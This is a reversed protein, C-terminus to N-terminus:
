KQKLQNKIYGNKDFISIEADGSATLCISVRLKGSTDHLGIVANDKDDFKAEIKSESAGRLSLQPSNTAKDIDLSAKVKGDRLMALTPSQNPDLGLLMGMKGDGDHFSLAVAGKGACQLQARTFGNSDTLVFKQARVESESPKQADAKSVEVILQLPEIPQKKRFM